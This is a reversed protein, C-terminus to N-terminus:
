VKNEDLKHDGCWDNIFVAPHGTMTPAHKRCRGLTASGKSVFWMCTACRMGKSRHAWPDRSREGAEVWKANITDSAEKVPDAPAIVENPDFMKNGSSVFPFPAAPLEVRGELQMVRKTLDAFLNEALPQKELADLRTLINKLASVNSLTKECMRDELSRSFEDNRAIREEAVRVREVIDNHAGTLSTQYRYLRKVDEQMKAETKKDM